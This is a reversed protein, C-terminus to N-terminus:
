PSEGLSDDNESDVASDSIESVDEVEKANATTVPKHCVRAGVKDLEKLLTENTRKSFKRDGKYQDSTLSSSLRRLLPRM